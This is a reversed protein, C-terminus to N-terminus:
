RGAGADDSGMLYCLVKQVGWAAVRTLGRGLLMVLPDIRVTQPLPAQPGAEVPEGLVIKDGEVRKTPCFKEM